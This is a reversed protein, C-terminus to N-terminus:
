QAGEMCDPCLGELISSNLLRFGSAKGIQESIAASIRDDIHMMRGCRVCKIHFHGSCLGPDRYQFVAEQGSPVKLLYGDRMLRPIARYVTALGIDPLLGAIEHATFSKSPNSEFVSLIRARQKTNYEKM